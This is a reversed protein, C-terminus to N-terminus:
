ACAASAANAGAAAPQPLSFGANRLAALLTEGDSFAVAQTKGGCRVEISSVAM